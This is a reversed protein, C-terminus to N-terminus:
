DVLSVLGNVVEFVLLRDEDVAEFVLLKDEDLLVLLCNDVLFPLDDDVLFPVLVSRWMWSSMKEAM